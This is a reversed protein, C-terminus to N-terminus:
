KLLIMKKSYFFRETKVEYLYLGAPMPRGHDSHGNWIIQHLGQIKQQNLLTKIKQGKLNYINIEVFSNNPIEFTINTSPNFPNPYNQHLVFKNPTIINNKETDLTLGFHIPISFTEFAATLDLQTDSFNIENRPISLNIQMPSDFDIWGRYPDIVLIENQDAIHIAFNDIAM